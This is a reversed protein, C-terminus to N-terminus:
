YLWFKILIVDTSISVLKTETSRKPWNEHWTTCAKFHRYHKVHMMIGNIFPSMQQLSMCIYRCITVLSPQSNDIWTCVCKVVTATLSQNRNRNCPRLRQLPSQILLFKAPYTEWFWRSNKPLQWLMLLSSVHLQTVPDIGAAAKGNVLQIPGYWQDTKGLPQSHPPPWGDM